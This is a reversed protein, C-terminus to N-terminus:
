QMWEQEKADIRMLASLYIGNFVILKWMMGKSLINSYGSTNVVIFAVTKVTVVLGEMIQGNTM